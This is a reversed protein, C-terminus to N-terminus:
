RVWLFNNITKRKLQIKSLDVPLKDGWIHNKNIIDINNTKNISILEDRHETLNYQSLFREAVECPIFRKKTIKLKVEFEGFMYLKFPTLGRQFKDRLLQLRIELGSKLKRLEWYEEIELKTIGNMKIM